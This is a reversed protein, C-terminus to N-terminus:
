KISASFAFIDYVFVVKNESENVTRKNSILEKQYKRKIREFFFSALIVLVFSIYFRINLDNLAVHKNGAYLFDLSLLAFLLIIVWGFAKVTGLAFFVIVPFVYAWPIRGMDGEYGIAYALYLGFLFILVTLFFEYVRNEKSKIQPRRIYVFLGVLIVVLASLLLGIFYRGVIFDRVGFAILAPFAVVMCVKVLYRRYSVEISTSIDEDFYKKLDSM